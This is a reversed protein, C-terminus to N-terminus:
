ADRVCRFSLNGTSSDMTNSSRAAVRYRNCYTYHCLYSGGRMTKPTQSDVNALLNVSKDFWDSCWEWVNGAMNYLGYGNPPFSEAPATGLYGDEESNTRPFDGQWINCYHEGNPHLEDGWAYKKQELGGRAAFEWEKETPLRKGAWKCYAKADNWSVHIVPHDMREEIGSGKGEPQYWYAEKVAFWWPTGQPQQANKMQEESLFKYFVFSWGYKESDTVYNTEDAFQKFERNSVATRDIYFPKVHVKRVPGEKDAPFGDRDETGMLFEGGSLYVMKEKFKVEEKEATQIKYSEPIDRSISDRSVSCCSPKSTHHEYM